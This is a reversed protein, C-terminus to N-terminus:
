SLSTQGWPIERVLQLLDPEGQYVQFMQRMFWLNPASFGQIGPFEDHLDRSLQEVVSKGWGEREQREVIEKGIKWYLEILERNVVRQIRLRSERVATKIQQLMEAYGGRPLAVSSM